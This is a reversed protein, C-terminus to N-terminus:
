KRIHKFSGREDRFEYPGDVIGYGVVERIGRRVFVRDGPKVEHSFNFTSKSDNRPEADKQYRQAHSSFHESLSQYGALDGLEDWGIAMIGSEYFENWFEARGGPAYIWVRSDSRDDQEGGRESALAIAEDYSDLLNTIDETFQDDSPLSQTAYFKYAITAQEYGKGLAGTARLDLGPGVVFGTEKLRTLSPRLAEARRNLELYGETRGLERSIKTVGQSLCLYFGSM